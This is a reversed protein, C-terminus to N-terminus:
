HEQQGSTAPATPRAMAKKILAERQARRAIDRLLRRHGMLPLVVLAALAALTVVYSVWVYFGHGNMYLLQDISEFIM